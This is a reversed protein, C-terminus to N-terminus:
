QTEEPIQNEIWVKDKEQIIHLQMSEALVELFMEMSETPISGTVQKNSIGADKFLMAVGYYDQFQEAVKALPTRKFILKKYRWASYDEPDVLKKDFVQSDDSLEVLDGPELTINGTEERNAKIAVKGTNLVVQTKGRRYNVNFTTGLVEVDLNGTHVIFKVKESSTSSKYRQQVDFFAEGELWVERPRDADWHKDFTLRSNANLAVESKDPLVVTKTENFATIFTETAPAIELLAYGLWLIGILLSAAIAGRFAYTRLSSRQPLLKYVPRSATVHEESQIKHWVEEFDEQSAQFHRFRIQQLLTRAEAVEKRKSPNEKLWNQWFNETDTDPHYVWKRFYEDAVFDQITFYIYRM